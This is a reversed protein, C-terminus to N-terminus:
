AVKITRPKSSEQKPLTITLIGDELKATIKEAVVGDPISVSRSFTETSEEGDAGKVHREGSVTLVANELEVNVDKKKVGPLEMRVYYAENDEFLDAGLRAVGSFMDEFVSDWDGLPWRRGSLFPDRFWSLLPNALATTPEPRQSRILQM